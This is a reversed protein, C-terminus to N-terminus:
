HINMFLFNKKFIKISNNLLCSHLYILVNHWKWCFRIKHSSKNVLACLYKNSFYFFYHLVSFSLSSRRIKTKKSFGQSLLSFFPFTLPFTLAFNCFFHSICPCYSSNSTPKYLFSKSAHSHPLKFIRSFFPNEATLWLRSWGPIVNVSWSMGMLGGAWGKHMLNCLTACLNGSIEWSCWNSPYLSNLYFSVCNHESLALFSSVAYDLM